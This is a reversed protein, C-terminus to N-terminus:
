GGWLYFSPPIRDPSRLSWTIPDGRGFGDARCTTALGIAWEQVHLNSHTGDHQPRMSEHMHMPVVELLVPLTEELFRDGNEARVSLTM